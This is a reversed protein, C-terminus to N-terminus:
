VLSSSGKTVNVVNVTVQRAKRQLGGSPFYVCKWVQSPLHLASVDGQTVRRLLIHRAIRGPLSTPRTKSKITNIRNSTHTNSLSLSPLLPNFSIELCPFHKCSRLQASVLSVSFTLSYVVSFGLDWCVSELYQSLHHKCHLPLRNDCKLSLFILLYALHIVPLMKVSYFM